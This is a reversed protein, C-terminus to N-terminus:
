HKIHELSKEWEVLCLCNVCMKMTKKPYIERSHGQGWWSIEKKM